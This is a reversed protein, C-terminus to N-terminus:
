AYNKNREYILLTTDEAAANPKELGHYNPLFSFMEFYTPLKKTLFLTARANRLKEDIGAGPKKYVPKKYQSLKRVTHVSFEVM